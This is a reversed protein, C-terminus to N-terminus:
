DMVCLVSGPESDLLQNLARITSSTGTICGDSCYPPAVSPGFPNVCIHTRFLDRGFPQSPLPPLPILTRGGPKTTAGGNWLWCDRPIPGVNPTSECNSNNKCGPMSNNGSAFLGNFARRESGNRSCEMRGSRVEYVCTAEGSPDTATLPRNSTYAYTNIGGDLGIPDSQEYRGITPDYDRAM